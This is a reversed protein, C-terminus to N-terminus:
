EEMAKKFYEIAKKYDFYNYLPTSLVFTQAKDKLFKCFNEIMQEQKWAAMELLQPHIQSKPCLKCDNYGGCSKETCFHYWLSKAKEEDQKNM